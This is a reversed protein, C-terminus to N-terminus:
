GMKQWPNGDLSVWMYFVGAVESGVSDRRRSHEVALKLLADQVGQDKGREVSSPLPYFM